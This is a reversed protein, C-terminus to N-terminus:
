PKSVNSADREISSTKSASRVRTSATSALLHLESELLLHLERRDVDSRVGDMKEDRVDVVAAGDDGDIALPVHHAQAGAREGAARDALRGALHRPAREAAEDVQRSVEPGLADDGGAGAGKALRPVAVLEDLARKALGANVDLDERALFLRAEDGDGDVVRQLEAVRAPEHDVDA